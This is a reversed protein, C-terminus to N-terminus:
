RARSRKKGESKSDWKKKGFPKQGSFPKGKKHASYKRPREDRSPQTERLPAFKEKDPFLSTKGEAMKCLAASLLLEATGTEACFKSVFEQYKPLKVDQLAAEVKTKFARFRKSQVAEHTPLQMKTMKQKSAREIINLMRIERPNVFLIAEGKRGARGTRGVRHIYSETDHPIDYNVVHTIRDVDLGRAAVDTAIVIDLRGNKLQEIIRERSKQAVDGSLAEAAYGRAQLKQALEVTATKTRVFILTADFDESDLIRTLMDLKQNGAVICFKQNILDATAQKAKINIEVPNSLYKDAIGRIVKPLTASFLATQRKAPAHELIWEVDDIFGMRLMEDAEDLVVCSLTDLRLSKRRLHDMIRGPTGVVVHVGRALHKLQSGMDAGGYIPFVNLQRMFSAYQKFAEAVQIALERTPVLVLVQPLTKRLDLKCLLPLAFAATKGTGTQAQGIIDEGNQIHPIAASQIPSPTEYGLGEIAKIVEPLLNFQKFSLQPTEIPTSM